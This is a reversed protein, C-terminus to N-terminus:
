WLVNELTCNFSYVSQACRFGETTDASTVPQACRFGEQIPSPSLSPVGSDKQQIPRPSLSLVGSDRQQIPRFSLHACRFGETTDASTVDQACRFGETTDTSTVPQARRFGETKDASTVPQACWKLNRRIFEKNGNGVISDIHKDLSLHNSITEGIYKTADVNDLTHGHLKYSTDIVEKNNVNADRWDQPVEVTNPSIQYLETLLALQDTAPRLIFSPISDPGTAKQAHNSTKSYNHVGKTSIKIDNM